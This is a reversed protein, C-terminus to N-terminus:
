QVNKIFMGDGKLIFIGESLEVSTMTGTVDNAHQRYQKM